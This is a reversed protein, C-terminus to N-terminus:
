AVRSSRYLHGSENVFDTVARLELARQRSRRVGANGPDVGAHEVALAVVSLASCQLSTESTRAAPLAASRAERMVGCTVGSATREMTNGRALGSEVSVHAHGNERRAPAARAARAAREHARAAGGSM